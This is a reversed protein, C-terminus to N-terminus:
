ISDIINRFTWFIEHVLAMDRLKGRLRVFGRFFRNIGKEQSTCRFSTSIRGIYEFKYFNLGHFTGM